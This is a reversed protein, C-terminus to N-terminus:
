KSDYSDIFAVMSDIYQQPMPGGVMIASMHNRGPLVVNQFVKLERWFRQTKSYPRDFEGNIAIVPITVATLDIQLPQRPTASRQSAQSRAAARERLRSFAQAEAGQPEPMEPDLAEAQAQLDADTERVGSGGFGATIFREPNSALLQGTIGGGMSYGHIHAKAIGLHDMLELVDEARGSGNPEPADSQGHNRNDLAVVRHNDALAGAIGTRFWMREATDTYGHVLMVWSGEDGLTMYHIKVGDSTTFFDHQPGQAQGQGVAVICLVAAAFAQKLLRM